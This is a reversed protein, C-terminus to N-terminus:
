RRLITARAGVTIDPECNGGRPENGGISIPASGEVYFELDKVPDKINPRYGVRGSARTVDPTYSVGGNVSATGGPVKVNAFGLQGDVGHRTQTVSGRVDGVAADVGFRAAEGNPTYMQVRASRNGSAVQASSSGASVRVDLTVPPEKSSPERGGVHHTPLKLEGTEELGKRVDKAGSVTNSRHFLKDLIGPM